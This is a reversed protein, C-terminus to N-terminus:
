ATRVRGFLLSLRPGFAGVRERYSAYESPFAGLLVAEEYRIRMVTAALWLCWVLALPLTPNLLVTATYVLLYGTYVPHRAFRYLGSTVLRRAAPEISFARRLSWLAAVSAVAGVLWLVSGAHRAWVPPEGQLWSPAFTDALPVFVMMLFSGGYAAVRAGPSRNVAKPRDRILFSLAVVFELVIAPLLIVGIGGPTQLTRVGLAVFLAFGCWDGLRERFVKSPVLASSAPGDTAM